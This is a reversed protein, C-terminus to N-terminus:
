RYRMTTKEEYNTRVLKCSSDNLCEDYSKFGGSPNPTCYGFKTCGYLTDKPLSGPSQGMCVNWCGEYTLKSTDSSKTVGTCKKTAYDCEYVRGIPRMNRFCTDRDAGVLFPFQMLNFFSTAACGGPNGFYSVNKINAQECQKKTSYEGRFDLVCSNILKNFYYKYRKNLCEKDCDEKSNNKGFKNDVFCRGVYYNCSYSNAAKSNLGSYKYILVFGVILIITSLIKKNKSIIYNM